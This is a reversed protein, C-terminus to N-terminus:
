PAITDDPLWIVTFENKSPPSSNNRAREDIQLPLVCSKLVKVPKLNGSAGGVWPLSVLECDTAVLAATKSPYWFNYHGRESLYCRTYNANKMSM